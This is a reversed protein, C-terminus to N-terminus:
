LSPPRLALSPPPGRSALAADVGWILGVVLFYHRWHDTDIVLGEIALPVFTACLAIGYPGLVSRSVAIRFARGLTLLTLAFYSLGGLWGYSMLANLYVNHPDEPFIEAFHLPGIGLPKELALAFGQLHRDFRGGPLVDYEQNLSAREQFLASVSELSLIAVLGVVLLAAGAAGLALIRGRELNTRSTVLMLYLGLVASGAFHGWAARSFTLLVATAFLGLLALFPLMARSGGVIRLLAYVAPAVLFPGLVNPDQFTGSARGFKTLGPLGLFYGATAAAAAIAAALLWARFILAVRREPDAAVYCAFFVAYAALYGSTAVFIIQHTKATQTLALTGGAVFALLLLLLPAVRAPLRMGGAVFGLVALLMLGDHPAPEFLVFSSSAVTLWVLAAGLAGTTLGARVTGQAGAGSHVLTTL